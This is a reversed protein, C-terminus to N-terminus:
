VVSKRDAFGTMAAPFAVPSTVASGLVSAMWGTTGVFHLRRSTAERHQSLYFPWFEEFSQIRESM